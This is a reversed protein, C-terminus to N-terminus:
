GSSTEEKAAVRRSIRTVGPTRKTREGAAGSMGRLIQLAREREEDLAVLGNEIVIIRDVLELARMRHTAIVVTRDTAWAGFKEIFHRETSEDMAATPEDLLVVRPQRVLLRALLISQKQGGSLGV